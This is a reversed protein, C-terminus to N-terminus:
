PGRAGPVPMLVSGVGEWLRDLAAQAERTPLAGTAGQALTQLLRRAEPNGMRELSEVARVMRLRDPTLTGGTLRLLLGEVRNRTELSPPTARVKELAPVAQEGVALLKQSARERVAFKPSELDAILRSITAPDVPATPKLRESLFPVAQGPARALDLIARFATAADEGTLDGWRAELEEASLRAPAPAQLAKELGAADWVLVTTDSAGSVLTRGDPAFAVTEVPGGHGKLQTIEKGATVDWVRVSLDPGRVALTRGDPSFALGVPGFPEGFGGLVGGGAVVFADVALALEQDMANPPAGAAVAAQSLRGREKGSAVEWLTITRDTNEAALTRGDPAFAFSTIPQRSEIKRLEKGTSADIILLTRSPTGPAPAVLLRGDPSFALGPGTPRSVGVRGGVVFVRNAAMNTVPVLAVQRLETGRAVDYVRLTNDGGRAALVKGDPAFALATTGAPNAPFRHLEKGTATDHLRVTKDANALAISWADPAITGLITGPPAAFAGLSRGTAREWRRVFRDAGWSVAVKGDGTLFVATPTRRHGGPLPLEEGTAADWVRATNGAAAAIRKGDASIALARTEPASIGGPAFVQRGIGQASEADGLARLEKGTEVEWLRVQQNTGRVALTKGDPSFALASVGGDPSRLQRLEKGTDAACLRILGAAGYALIQGGPAVAVASVRAGGPVPVTRIERGTVPDWFKIAGVLKGQEDTTAAAALAKGDPTFAMGPAEGPRRFTVAVAQRPKRPPPSFKHIEKGTDPDWLFLTTTDRGALIRGDPSFLLGLLAGGQRRITRLEKGTAVDWLQIVGAGVAALTKGDPTFAVPIPNGDGRGPFRSMTIFDIQAQRTAGPGPPMPGPPQPRTFHRVEKATALDWLHITNDRGATLLAQGDPTFAVFTVDGGHRFRTTGLRALAGAPLPDGNTDAAARGSIGPSGPASNLPGLDGAALLAAAALVAAAMAARKWPRSPREVNCRLM